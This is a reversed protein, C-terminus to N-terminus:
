AGAQRWVVPVCQASLSKCVPNARELVQLHPSVMPLALDHPVAMSFIILSSRPPPATM